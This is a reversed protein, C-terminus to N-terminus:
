INSIVCRGCNNVEFSLYMSLTRTGRKRTGWIIECEGSNGVQPVAKKRTRVGNKSRKEGFTGRKEREQEGFNGFRPVRNKADHRWKYANTGWNGTNGTKKICMYFFFTHTIKCKRWNIFNCIFKKRLPSRTKKPFM